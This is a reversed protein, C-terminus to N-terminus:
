VYHASKTPKQKNYTKTIYSTVTYNINTNEWLELTYNTFEYIPDIWIDCEIDSGLIDIMIKGINTSMHLNNLEKCNRHIGCRILFKVKERKIRLENVYCLVDKISVMYPYMSDEDIGIVTGDYEDEDLKNEDDSYRFKCIDKTKVNCECYSWPIHNEFLMSSKILDNTEYEKQFESLKIDTKIIIVMSNETDKIDHIKHVYVSNISINLNNEYFWQNINSMITDIDNRIYDYQFYSAYLLYNNIDENIHIRSKIIKEYRNNYRRSTIKPITIAFYLQKESVNM